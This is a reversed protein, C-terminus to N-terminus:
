AQKSLYHVLISVAAISATEAKMIYPGLPVPVFGRSLAQEVESADLGGEPGILVSVERAGSLASELPVTLGEHEYALIRVGPIQRSQGLLDGLPTVEGVEPAAGRGCQESAAKAVKQWRVRRESAKAADLRPITRRSVVPVIASVGVETAKEVVLDFNHGKLLSALLAVKWPPPVARTRGTVEGLLRDSSMESVEALYITDGMVARFTEGVRLRQARAHRLPDGALVIQNGLVMDPEVFFQPSTHSDTRRDESM